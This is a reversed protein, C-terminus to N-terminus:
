GEDPKVNDLSLQYVRIIKSDPSTQNKYLYISGKEYLIGGAPILHEIDKRPVNYEDAEVSIRNRSMAYLWYADYPGYYYIEGPCPEKSCNRHSKIWLAADYLSPIDGTRDYGLMDEMLYLPYDKGLYTGTFTDLVGFDKSVWEPNISKYNMFAFLLALFVFFLLHKKMKGLDRAYLRRTFLDIGVAAYVTLPYVFLFFNKHFWYPELGKKLAYHMLAIQVLSSVLLFLLGHVIANRDKLFVYVHYFAGLSALVIIYYGVNEADGKTTIGDHVLHMQTQYGLFAPVTSLVGKEIGVEHAMETIYVAGILGVVAFFFLAHAMRFVWSGKLKAAAVLYALVPAAALANYAFLIAVEVLTLVALIGWDKTGGYDLLILIFLMVLYIGMIQAWFGFALISAPYISVLLFLPVFLASKRSKLLDCAIGYSSLITMVTILVLFPQAMTIPPVNLARALLAANIHFGFPYTRLDAYGYNIDHELADRDYIYQIYVYHTECDGAYCSPSLHPLSPYLYVCLSFLFVLVFYPLTKKDLMMTANIRRGATLCVLAGVALFVIISDSLPLRFYDVAFGTVAVLSVYVGFVLNVLKEVTIKRFAISVIKYSVVLGVLLSLIDILM